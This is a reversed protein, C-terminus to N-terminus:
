KKKVVTIRSVGERAASIMKKVLNTREELIIERAVKEVEQKKFANDPQEDKKDEDEDDTTTAPKRFKNKNNDEKEVIVIRKGSLDRYVGGLPAAKHFNKKKGASDQQKQQKEELALRNKHKRAAERQVRFEKGMKKLQRGFGGKGGM